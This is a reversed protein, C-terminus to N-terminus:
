RGFGFFFEKLEDPLSNYYDQMDKESNRNNGDGGDESEKEDNQDNKEDISDVGSDKRTALTVTVTKEIYEGDQQRSIM